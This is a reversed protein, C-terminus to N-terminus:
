KVQMDETWGTPDFCVRVFIDVHDGDVLPVDRTEWIILRIEYSKKKLQKIKSLPLSRAKDSPLVETFLELIGQAHGFKKPHFIERYEIPAM